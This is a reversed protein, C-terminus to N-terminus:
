QPSQFPHSFSLNSKALKNINLDSTQLTMLGLDTWCASWRMLDSYPGSLTAPNYFKCLTGHGWQSVCHCEDVVLRALHGSRYLQMLANQLKGNAVLQEPTVFLLKITPIEKSLESYVARSEQATQQSSLYTAPVGGSALSCLGQVQDQMLSLLPTVVVTLGRNLVAPLQYCLSKGGGTPMLVFIDSKRLAEDIIERQQKRFSRNGFVYQNAFAVDDLDEYESIEIMPASSPKAQFFTSISAQNSQRTPGDRVVLKDGYNVGFHGDGSYGRAQELQWEGDAESGNEEFHDGQGELYWSLFKSM